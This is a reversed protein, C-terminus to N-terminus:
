SDWKWALTLPDAEPQCGGDAARLVFTLLPGVLCFGCALAGLNGKL